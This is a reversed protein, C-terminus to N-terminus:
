VCAAHLPSVPRPLLPGAHSWPILCRPTESQVGTGRQDTRPADSWDRAEQVEGCQTRRRRAPAASGRGWRAMSGSSKQERVPLVPDCWLWWPSDSDRPLTLPRSPGLAGAMTRRRATRPTDPPSKGLVRCCAPARAKALRGAITAMPRAHAGPSSSGRRVGAFRRVLMGPPGARHVTVWTTRGYRM